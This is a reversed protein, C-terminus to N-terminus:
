NEELIKKYEKEKKQMRVEEVQSIEHDFGLLHLFGHILLFKLEEELSIKKREADRLATEASIVIDGLQLRPAILESENKVMPFSLVDTPKDKKRYKLNLKHIEDDTVFLISLEYCVEPGWRKLFLTKM